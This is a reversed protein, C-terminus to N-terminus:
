PSRERPTLKVQYLHPWRKGTVFLRRERPDWAIGNLVNDRPADAYRDALASMDAEGVVAGSKPDIMVIVNSFWVNAYVLGDIYELENLRRVAHGKREVTVARRVRFDEPDLFYLRDSGDSMILSDGDWTLGWGERGRYRARRREQLSSKDYVFVVGAQWTLQVLSDGVVALGEGFYRDALRHRKQVDYSPFRYATLASQGHLGTSEYLLGDEFALGQTFGPEPRTYVEVTEVAYQVPEPPEVPGAPSGAAVAPLIMFSIIATRAM